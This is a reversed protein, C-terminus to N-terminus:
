RVFAANIWNGRDCDRNDLTDLVLTIKSQGAVSLWVTEPLTTRPLPTGKALAGVVGHFGSEWLIKDGDGLVRFQVSQPFCYAGEERAVIAYFHRADAPVAYTVSTPAHMGVGKKYEIAAAVLPAGSNTQDLLPATFGWDTALPKLDSLFTASGIIAPPEVPMLFRTFFRMDRVPIDVYAAYRVAWDISSALNAFAAAGILVRMVLALRVGSWVPLSACWLLLLLPMFELAYRQTAFHYGFILLWESALLCVFVIGAWRRSRVLQWLGVPLAVMLWPTAWPLPLTWEAWEEFLSPKDYKATLQRVFPRETDLHDWRPVMYNRFNSPIRAANFEGGRGEVRLDGQQPRTVALLSGFRDYNYWGQAMLGLVGPILAIALHRLGVTRKRLVHVVAYALCLYLPAGFTLRGLLALAAALALLGIWRARSDGFALATLAAIGWSAPAFGWLIAEHYIRASTLLFIIPTGLGIGWLTLHIARRQHAASTLPVRSVAVLAGLLAVAAALLCSARAHMGYWDASYIHAWRVIAPLPGFYMVKRGDPRTFGEWNITDPDVDSRGRLLNRALSDYSDSRLEPKRLEFTGHTVFITWILFVIAFRWAVGAYLGLRSSM